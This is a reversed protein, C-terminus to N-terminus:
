SRGPFGSIRVVGETPTGNPVTGQARGAIRQALLGGSELEAIARDLHTDRVPSSEIAAFLAAKRLLEKVYAPSAGALRAVYREFDVDELTLGRAYLALLARRGSADPLPLEVALDIRGPRAALAPELLEPRNTTLIFLVDADDALGDMQNLLEFLLPQTQMGPMGREQAILDVDELVVTAPALARALAGVTGVLGLGLGSTLILTRDPMRSALYMVTLTKGTGPPGFLLMGRKLPRGGARLEATHASFGISHREIRELVDAPLVVDGRSVAPLRHFRVLAQVGFQGPAISIAKGRYVNRARMQTSLEHLLAAADEQRAAAVEVRMRARPGADPNPPGAVFVAYRMDGDAVLYLGFQVCALVTDGDLHFSIYDVPGEAMRGWAGTQGLLDSFTIAGFRKNQAAVGVLDATRHGATLVADLALQVNPHDYHDFEESVIPLRSPDAGLHARLRALLGSEAPAAANMTELFRRFAAAFDARAPDDSV